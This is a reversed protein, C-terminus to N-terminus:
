TQKKARPHTKDYVEALHQFNLHTYIQTTALNSHGLLEQVARLNGSSELIHTAFSHRMMHPNLSINMRLLQSWIKMRMQVSRVSIRTGRASLFLADDSCIRYKLERVSLWSKIAQIAIKGCPVIREKKGKGMVRVEAAMLNVNIKDLSVLESVRLGSSYLLEFMAKDRILINTDADLSLFYNALDVDLVKPLKKEKKPAKISIFPNVTTIGEKKLWFFFRRLTSLKRAITTANDGEKRRFSLYKKALKTDIISYAAVGQSDLFNIFQLLDREYSKVTNHALAILDKQFRFFINPFDSSIM